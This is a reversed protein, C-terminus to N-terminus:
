LVCGDFGVSVNGPLEGRHEMLWVDFSHGVHTLVASKPQLEDICQL